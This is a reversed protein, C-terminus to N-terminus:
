LDNKDSEQKLWALFIEYDSPVNDSLCKKYHQCKEDCAMDYGCPRLTGNKALYEALAEESQTIRDFNTQPKPVNKCYELIKLEFGTM